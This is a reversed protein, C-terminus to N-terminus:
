FGFFIKKSFFRTKWGLNNSLYNVIFVVTWENMWENMWEHGMDNKEVRDQGIDTTGTAPRSTYLWMLGNHRWVHRDNDEELDIVKQM